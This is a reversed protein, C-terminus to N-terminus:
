APLSAAGKPVSYSECLQALRRVAESDRGFQCPESRLRSYFLGTEVEADPATALWVPTQAGQDPSTSGGFGLDNSLKSNVDGPHCSVAKIGKAKWAEAFHVTLMRNAQKSQRYAADNDYARRRFEPDDLDLGGAYYSAVNVVRAPEGAAATGALADAFEKMMRFYGLVNVAWQAEIGEATVARKRPTTAANNILAHLPGEWSRRLARISEMLSLDAPSVHINRNRTAAFIEQATQDLKARDRGVLFIEWGARALQRAIAAGIAGYAGTVLARKAEGM